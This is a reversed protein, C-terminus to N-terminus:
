RKGRRKREEEKRGRREERKEGREDKEVGEKRRNRLNLEVRELHGDQTHLVLDPADFLGEM